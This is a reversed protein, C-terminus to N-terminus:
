QFIYFYPRDPRIKGGGGNLRVVSSFSSFRGVFGECLPSKRIHIKVHM